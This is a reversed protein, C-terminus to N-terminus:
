GRSGSAECEMKWGLALWIVSVCSWKLAHKRKRLSPQPFITLLWMCLAQYCHEEWNHITHLTNHSPACSWSRKWANCIWLSPEPITVHSPEMTNTKGTTFQIITCRAVEENPLHIRQFNWWIRAAIGVERAPHPFGLRTVPIVVNRCISLLRGNKVFQFSSHLEHCAQWVPQSVSYTDVNHIRRWLNPEIDHKYWSLDSFTNLGSSLVVGLYGGCSANRVGVNLLSTVDSFPLKICLSLGLSDFTSM